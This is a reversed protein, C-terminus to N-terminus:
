KEENNQIKYFHKNLFYIIMFIFIFSFAEIYFSHSVCNLKIKESGVGGLYLYIGYLFGLLMSFPIPILCLAGLIRAPLGKVIKKNNLKFEGTSLAIIGYVLLIIEVILIM